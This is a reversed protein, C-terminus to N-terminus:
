QGGDAFSKSHRHCSTCAVPIGQSHNGPEGTNKHSVENVAHCVDCVGDDPATTPDLDRAVKFDVKIYGAGLGGDISDSVMHLNSTGHSNHCTKCEYNYNYLGTVDGAHRTVRKDATIGFIGTNTSDMDHCDLCVASTDNNFALRSDGPIGDTHGAGDPDHCSHCDLSWSGHINGHGTSDYYKTTFPATRGKVISTGDHCGRCYEDYKEKLWSGQPRNWYTKAFIRGTGHCEDCILSSQFPKDDKMMTIKDITTHRAKNNNPHCDNCSESTASDIHSRHSGTAMVDVFQKGHCDECDIGEPNMYLFPVPGKEVCGALFIILLAIIVNISRKM